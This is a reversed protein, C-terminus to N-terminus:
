QLDARGGSSPRVGGGLVTRFGTAARRSRAPAGARGVRRHLAPARRRGPRRDPVPGAAGRGRLPGYGSRFHCRRPDTIQGDVLGDLGDCAALAGRHLVPLDVASIIAKGDTGTNSLAQWAHYFSNQYAFNLAPAGAAIGDFDAPYRQAEILAERGGDSCGSFYSYRPRQGYFAAILAKATVSPRM